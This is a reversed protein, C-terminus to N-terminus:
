NVFKRIYKGDEKIYKIASELFGLKDFFLGLGRNCNGFLLGRIKNSSHNHDIALRKMQGNIILNEKKFCIACVGNQYEFLEKYQKYSIGLRRMMKTIYKDPNRKFYEKHYVRFYERQAVRNKKHWEKLYKKQYEKDKWPM